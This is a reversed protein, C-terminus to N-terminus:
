RSERFAKEEASHNVLDSPDLSEPQAEVEPAQPPVNQTSKRNRDELMRARMRYFHGFLRPALRLAALSFSLRWDQRVRKAQRGSEVAAEYNGKDLAHKMEQVHCEARISGVLREITQRQEMSVPLTAAVKEYVRIRDRKMSLRDASLGQENIRRFVQPESHYRMRAGRFALRLWLDFDECRHFGEDFLGAQVISERLVLATSTSIACSEVLLSDFNVAGSQPEISFANAFPKEEKLLVCDCYALDLAADQQFLEMLKGLHDPRWYDDADLFAVYKGRAWLIGANRAGSPGRTAQKQYRIHDWYPLLAAELRPTDPSGDNIVIIEFDSFSQELVSDVAQAIYQSCRFAPIVVSVLTPGSAQRGNDSVPV